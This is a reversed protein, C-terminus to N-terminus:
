WSVPYSEPGSYFAAGTLFMYETRSFHGGREARPPNGVENTAAHNRRATEQGAYPEWGSSFGSGSLFAGDIDGYHNPATAQRGASGEEACGPGIGAAMLLLVAVPHFSRRM